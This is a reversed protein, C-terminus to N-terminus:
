TGGNLQGSGRANIIAIDRGSIVGQVQLTGGQSSGVGGLLGNSVSSAASGGSGTLGMFSSFSGAQGKTIINLIVWAAAQALIEAAIRKISEIIADAMAEWGRTASMFVDSFTGGLEMALGIQDRTVMTLKEAAGLMPALKLPDPDGMNPSTKGPMVLVNNWMEMADAAKRIDEAANGAREGAATFTGTLRILAQEGEAEIEITRALEKVFENWEGEKGIEDKLKKYDRLIASAQTVQKLESAESPTLGVASQRYTLKTVREGLMAEYAESGFYAWNAALKPIEKKLLETYAKSQQLQTLFYDWQADVRKKQEDVEISTLQRQLAIAEGLFQQKMKDDTTGAAAVRLKGISFKLSAKQLANSAAIDDLEDFAATLNRTAIETSQINRIINSFDGTSITRMLGQLSGKATAVALEFRDAGQETSVFAEKLGKLAALVGATTFAAAMLGGIKGIKKGFTATSQEADKLGRDFEKTEVTLHASLKPENGAM